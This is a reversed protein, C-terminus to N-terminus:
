CPDPHIADQATQKARKAQSSQGGRLCLRRWFSGRAFCIRGTLLRGRFDRRFIRVLREYDLTVDRRNAEFIVAGTFAVERGAHAHLGICTRLCELFQDEAVARWVFLYVDMEDAHAVGVAGDCICFGVCDFFNGDRECGVSGGVGGRHFFVDGHGGQM